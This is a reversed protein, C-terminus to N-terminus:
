GGYYINNIHPFCSFQNLILSINQVADPSLYHAYITSLKNKLKASIKFLTICLKEVSKKM